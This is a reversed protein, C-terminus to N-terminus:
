SSTYLEISAAGRNGLTVYVNPSHCTEQSEGLFGGEWRQLCHCKSSKGYHLNCYRASSLDQVQNGKIGRHFVMTDGIPHLPVVNKEIVM